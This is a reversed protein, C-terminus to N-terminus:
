GRPQRPNPRGPSPNIPPPTPRDGRGPTTNIPPPAPRDNRGPSTNIPPPTPRDNRGPRDPTPYTRPPEPRYSGPDRPPRPNPRGPYTSPPEPRYYGPDRGPRPWPDIPIPILPPRPNIPTSYGLTERANRAERAATGVDSRLKDILSGLQDSGYRDDYPNPDLPNRPDYGPNDYGRNPRNRRAEDLSRQTDGLERVVDDLNDRARDVDRDSWDDWSDWTTSHDLAELVTRADRRADELSDQARKLNRSVEDGFLSWPQEQRRLEQAQRVGQLDRDIRQMVQYVQRRARQQPNGYLDPSGPQWTDPPLTPDLVTWDDGSDIPPPVPRYDDFATVTVPKAATVAIPKAPSAVQPRRLPAPSAKAM